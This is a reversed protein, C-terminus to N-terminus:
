LADTSVASAPQPVFTINLHHSARGALAGHDGHVEGAMDGEFSPLVERLSNFVGTVTKSLFQLTYSLDHAITDNVNIYMESLSDINFRYLSSSKHIILYGVVHPEMYNDIQVSFM